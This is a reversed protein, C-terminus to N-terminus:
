RRGLAKACHSCRSACRSRSRRPPPLGAGRPLDGAIELRAGTVPFGADHLEVVTGRVLARWGTAPSRDALPFEDEENLDIARVSIRPEAGHEARVTLGQAIAFPLALGANYDTHEGILNVRGPAFAAAHEPPM